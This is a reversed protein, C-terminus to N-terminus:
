ARVRVQYPKALVVAEYKGSRAAAESEAQAAEPAVLKTAVPKGAVIGVMLISRIPDDANV